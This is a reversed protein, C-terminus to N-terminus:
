PNVDPRFIAPNLFRPTDGATEPRTSELVSGARPQGTVALRLGVGLFKLMELNLGPHWKDARQLTADWRNWVWPIKHCGHGNGKGIEMHRAILPRNTLRQAHTACSIGSRRNM